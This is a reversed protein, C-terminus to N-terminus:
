LPRRALSSSLPLRWSPPLRGPVLPLPAAARVVRRPARWILRLVLSCRLRLLPALDASPPRGACGRRTAWPLGPGQSQPLTAIRLAPPGPPTESAAPRAPGHAQVPAPAAAAAGEGGCCTAAAACDGGGALDPTLRPGPRELPLLAETFPRRDTADSM